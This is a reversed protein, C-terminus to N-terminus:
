VRFNLSAIRACIEHRCLTQFPTGFFPLDLFGAFSAPNSAINRGPWEGDIVAPRERRSVRPRFSFAMKLDSCRGCDHGAPHPRSATRIPPNLARYAPGKPPLHTRHEFPRGNPSPLWLRRAQFKLCAETLGLQNRFAYLVHLYHKSKVHQYFCVLSIVLLAVGLCGLKGPLFRNAFSGFVIPNFVTAESSSHLASGPSQHRSIGDLCHFQGCRPHFLFPATGFYEEFRRQRHHRAVSEPLAALWPLNDVPCLRSGPHSRFSNIWSM